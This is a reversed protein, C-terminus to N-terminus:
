QSDSAIYIPEIGKDQDWKGTLTIETGPTLKISLLTIKDNANIVVPDDNSDVLNLTLKGDAYENVHGVLKVFVGSPLLHLQETSLVNTSM